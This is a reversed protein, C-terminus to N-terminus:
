HSIHFIYILCVGNKCDDLLAKRGYYCNSTEKAFKYHHLIENLDNGSLGHGNTDASNWDNVAKILSDLECDLRTHVAAEWKILYEKGRLSPTAYPDEVNPVLDRLSQCPIDVVDDVRLTSTLFGKM